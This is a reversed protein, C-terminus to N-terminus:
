EFLKKKPRREGILMELVLLALAIGFFYMYREDYEEFVVSNFEEAEMKRIDDIVPNLGFEENGAHVYAGNGAQAIERLAEEDLRTVVIEGGRDRLLEGDMPIPQGQASGVGITYVRVGMEAATRAAEVPDDEHNEGDTIM